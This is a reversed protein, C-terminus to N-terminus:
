PSINTFRCSDPDTNKKGINIEDMFYDPNEEGFKRGLEQVHSFSMLFPENYNRMGKPDNYFIYELRPIEKKLALLKDSQEQDEALAIEAESHDLIYHLEKEIADQYLPVPVGWLCQAAAMGWYLHPRNDGIIAMKYDRQFGLSALGLAFDKVQDLYDQWTYSQWIGYGKERIAIRRHGYKRANDLLIHPFTKVPENM